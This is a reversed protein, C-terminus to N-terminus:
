ERTNTSNSQSLFSAFEEFDVFGSDDEDAEQMLKRLMFVDLGFERASNEILETSIQGTKDSNGGMAVFADITDKDIHKYKLNKKEEKVVQLFDNFDLTGFGNDKVKSISNFMDDATPNFGLDQLSNKLYFVDLGNTNIDDKSLYQNFVEKCIDFEEQETLDIKKIINYQDSRNQTEKQTEKKNFNLSNDEPQEQDTEEHSNEDVYDELPVSTLFTNDEPLPQLNGTNKQQTISYNQKELQNQTEQQDKM